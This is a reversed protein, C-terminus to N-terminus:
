TKQVQKCNDVSLNCDLANTMTLRKRKEISEAERKSSREKQERDGGGELYKVISDNKM